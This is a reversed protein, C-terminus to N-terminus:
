LNLVVIGALAVSAGLARAVGLRERFAAAGILAAFVIGIERTAAITGTHGPAQGQAWIVIGYAVLSVVGSVVGIALFPRCDAALRRPGRLTALVILTLPGQLAFVWIVYVLATPVQAVGVGDILTYSAIFGGTAVAALTAARSRGGGQGGAAVLVIGGCLMGLGVWAHPEPHQGLVTVGVAVVLLPAVARALPYTHSFDGLRYSRLLCFGYIVHTVVSGIIWPWAAPPPVPSLLTLPVAVVTYAVAILALGARRDPIYHAIANWCAHLLGAFVVTGLVSSPVGSM